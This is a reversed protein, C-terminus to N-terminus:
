SSKRSCCATFLSCYRCNRRTPTEEAELPALPVENPSQPLAVESDRGRSSVVALATSSLNVPQDPDAEEQGLLSKVVGERGEGAAPSLSM